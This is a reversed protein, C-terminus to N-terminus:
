QKPSVLSGPAGLKRDIKIKQQKQKTRNAGIATSLSRQHSEMTNM